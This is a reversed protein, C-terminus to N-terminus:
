FASLSLIGTRYSFESTKGDGTSVACVWSAPRTGREMGTIGDHSLAVVLRFLRIPHRSKVVIIPLFHDTSTATIASRPTLLLGLCAIDVNTM